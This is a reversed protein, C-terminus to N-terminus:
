PHPNIGEEAGVAGLRRKCNDDSRDVLVDELGVQLLDPEGLRRVM